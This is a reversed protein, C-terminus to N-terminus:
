LCGGLRRAIETADVESLLGEACSDHYVALMEPCSEWRGSALAEPYVGTGTWRVRWLGVISGGIGRVAFYETCRAGVTDTM